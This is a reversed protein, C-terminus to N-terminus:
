LRFTVPEFGTGAVLKVQEHLRGDRDFAAIYDLAQKVAPWAARALTPDGLVVRDRWLQLVFKPNLDKWRNPDRYDYANLQLWPDEAPGGADHPVAGPLKRTVPEPDNVLM